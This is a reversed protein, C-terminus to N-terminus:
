NIVIIEDNAFWGKGSLNEKLRVPDDTYAAVALSREARSCIVYFLRRTRDIDTENGESENKMDAETKNKIGFLKDYSFLFGRAESDDIIAMVRQFELGKVGQHTFFPSQESIYAAYGRIQSFKTNLFSNLCDIKDTSPEADNDVEDDFADTMAQEDPTRM